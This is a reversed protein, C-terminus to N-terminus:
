TLLTVDQALRSASMVFVVALLARALWPWGLWALLQRGPSTQRVADQLLWCAALALLVPLLPFALVWVVLGASVRTLRARQPWAGPRLWRESLLTLGCAYLGPILVFMAIALVAPQLLVFDVGDTHVLMEGVVVAPGIAISVVQFWRPGIMLGRLVAYFASGLLGLGAGVALLNLTNVVDFQGMVFGDDSVTGAVAPNLQALLLMAARGGVGGVLLGMLVGAVSLASMKRVVHAFRDRRSEPSATRQSVPASTTTM